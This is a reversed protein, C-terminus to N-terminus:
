IRITFKMGKASRVQNGASEMYIDPFDGSFYQWLLPPMTAFSVSASDQVECEVANTVKSSALHRVLLEAGVVGALVVVLVIALVLAM